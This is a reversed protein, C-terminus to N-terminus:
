RIVPKLSAADLEYTGGFLCFTMKIKVIVSDKSHSELETASANLLANVKVESHTTGQQPFM